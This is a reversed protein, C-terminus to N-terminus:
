VASRLTGTPDDEDPAADVDRREACREVRTQAGVGLNIGGRPSERGLSRSRHAVIGKIRQLNSDSARVLCQYVCGSPECNCTVRM